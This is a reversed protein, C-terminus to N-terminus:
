PRDSGSTPEPLLPLIGEVLGAAARREGGAYDEPCPGRRWTELSCFHDGGDAHLRIGLKGDTCGGEGDVCYAEWAYTGNPDRIYRGMDVEHVQGDHERAIERYGQAIPDEGSEGAPLPPAILIVEVGRALYQDVLRRTSSLWYDLSPDRKACESVATRLGFLVAVDPTQRRSTIDVLDCPHAGGNAIMEVAYGREGLLKAVCPATEVAISNGVFAVNMTAPIAPGALDCRPASAYGGDAPLPGEDSAVLEPIALAVGLAAAVVFAAVLRVVIPV